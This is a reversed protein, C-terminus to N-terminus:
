FEQLCIMVNSTEHGTFPDDTEFIWKELVLEIVNCISDTDPMFAQVLECKWSKKKKENEFNQKNM